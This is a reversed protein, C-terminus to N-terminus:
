QNEAQVNQNNQWTGTQYELHNNTFLFSRSGYNKMVSLNLYQWLAIIDKLFHSCLLESLHLEIKFLKKVQYEKRPELAGLTTPTLILILSRSPTPHPKLSLIPPIFRTDRNRKGCACELGPYLAIRLKKGGPICLQIIAKWNKKKFLRFIGKYTRSFFYLLM